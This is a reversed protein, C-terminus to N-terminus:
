ESRGTGEPRYPAHTGAVAYPASPIAPVGCPPPAPQAHSRPIRARLRRATPSADLTLARLRDQQDTSPSHRGNRRQVTM